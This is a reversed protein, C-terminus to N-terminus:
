TVVFRVKIEPSESSPHYLTGRGKLKLKRPPDYELTNTPVFVYRVKPLPASSRSPKPEVVGLTGVSKTAPSFCSRAM